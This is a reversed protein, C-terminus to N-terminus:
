AGGRMAAAAAGVLPAMNQLDSHVVTLRETAAALAGEAIGVRVRSVLDPMGAVVGGGLLLREPNLTNVLSICGAALASALEEFLEGALADGAAVAAGLHVATLADADGGALALLSRARMPEAAVRERLTQAIGWGSAYAEWCGRHGCSCLRGGWVLTTHGVEGASNAAGALLKGGAVIGGGVGTGVFICLFDKCGRGRGYLWEGWAAARVDNLVVVPRKLRSYLEAGLPVSRWRLNPAFLVRGEGATVQGAVGVGIAAVDVGRRFLLPEIAGVLRGIVGAAERNGTPWEERELLNGEEDVLAVGIKTGGLDVGIACRIM